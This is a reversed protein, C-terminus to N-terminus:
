DETQGSRERMQLEIWDPTCLLIEGLAEDLFAGALEALEEPSEVSSSTFQVKLYYAYKDELKFALQRVGEANPTIGGNALFFYGSYVDGESNLFRSVRMRLTSPDFPVRVDTGKISAYINSTRYWYIDRTGDERVIPRLEEPTSGPYGDRELRLRSGPGLNLPISVIKSGSAKQLGAGVFCREPVHPVTDIMGTYYAAHLSFTTTAGEEDKPRYNRTLYNDTGLTELTEPSELIDEGIRIFSETEPYISSLLRPAPVPLKQLYVSAARIGATMALASVVLLGLVVLFALRQGRM